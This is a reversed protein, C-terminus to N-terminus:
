GHFRYPKYAEIHKIKLHRSKGQRSGHNGSPQGCFKTVTGRPSNKYVHFANEAMSKPCLNKYMKHKLFYFDNRCNEALWGPMLMIGDFIPKIM